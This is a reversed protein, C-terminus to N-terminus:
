LSDLWSQITGTIQNGHTFGISNHDGGKLEHFSKKKSAAIRFLEKGMAYPVIDDRDGHMILLPGMFRSLEAKNDIKERILLKIPLFPFAHKGMELTSTISQMLILGAVERRNALYTAPGSGISRGYPIINKGSIGQSVLYDYVALTDQNVGEASPSGPSEGYGRYDFILVNLGKSIFDRLEQARNTLNGANGHCWILTYPSAGSDAWWGSIPDSGPVPIDVKKAKIGLSSPEPVPGKSPIFILKRQFFFAAACLIIYAILLILLFKLMTKM